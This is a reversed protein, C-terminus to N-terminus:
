EIRIKLGGNGLLFSDGQKLLYKKGSELKTGNPLFTGYTSDLDMLVIGNDRPQISCHTGSIGPTDAPYVIQCSHSRGVKLEQSVTYKKGALPGNECVLHFNKQSVPESGAQVVMFVEKGNGLCFTDGHKLLYKQNPELKTGSTLQTGYTSGLDMLAVGNARPSLTCHNGSIGPHDLPYSIDCSHSRGIRLDKSVPFKKGAHHGSQGVLVFAANGHAPASPSASAAPAPLTNQRIQFSQKASGLCFVDGHKLLYKQNPELKTGNSLLIGYTSGLDTVAVGNERPSVSCHMGSIGPIESTFVIDNDSNRGIHLSKSVPFVKGAHLGSQGVLSFDAKAAPAAKPADSSLRISFESPDVSPKPAPAPQKPAPASQKPPVAPEPKKPAPPPTQRAPKSSQSSGILILVIFVVGIGVAVILWVPISEEEDSDSESGTESDETPDADPDDRDEIVTFHFGSLTGSDILDNLCDIVYDIELALNVLGDQNGVGWTNLGIVYGEETILPGGSNGHNIDADIQIARSNEAEFTAFRSITGSTITISDIDAPTTSTVEDSVGPYGLAFITDGPFAEQAHMLPLSVREDVTRHARLIAYDPAGGAPTYVVDCRVAHVNDAVGGYVEISNQWDNDLLIYVEDAGVVVHNNTVFITSPEGEEGVALGSGLSINAYAGQHYVALVRVVGNRAEAAKSGKAAASIPVLLFIVIMLATIRQIMRKM